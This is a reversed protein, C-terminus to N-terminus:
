IHLKMSCRGQKYAPGIKKDALRALRNHPVNTVGVDDDGNAAIIVQEPAYGEAM